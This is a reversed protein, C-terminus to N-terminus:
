DRGQGQVARNTQPEPSDHFSFALAM